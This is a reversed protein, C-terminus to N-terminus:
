VRHHGLADGHDAPHRLDEDEAVLLERNPDFEIRSRQGVARQVDVVDDGGDLGGVDIQGRTQELVLPGGPVDIGLALEFIGGRVFVEDDGEAFATRHPQALYAPGDVAHLVRAGGAPVAVVLRDHQGDLSLRPGIGDRYGVAHLGDQRLKPLEDGGRDVHLDDEILRLDDALRHRLHLEREDQGQDEHDDHDKEEQAAQAGGDDGAQRQR